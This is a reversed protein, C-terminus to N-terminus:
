AASWRKPHKSQAYLSSCLERMYDESIRPRDALINTLQLRTILQARWRVGVDTHELGIWRAGSGATYSGNERTPVAAGDNIAIVSAIDNATAFLRTRPNVRADLLTALANDKSRTSSVSVLSRYLTGSNSNLDIEATIAPQTKESFSEELANGYRMQGSRVSLYDPTIASVRVLGSRLDASYAFRVRNRENIGVQGDLEHVARDISYSSLPRHFTSDPTCAAASLLPGVM